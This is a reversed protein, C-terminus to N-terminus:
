KSEVIKIGFDMINKISETRMGQTFEFAYRGAQPFRVQKKFLMECDKVSGGKGFWRGTEDALFCELKDRSYDQNPYYTKLFLFLNMWEYDTNHRLTIYVDYSQITDKIETEFSVPQAINWGNEPIAKTDNLLISDSSSCAMLGFTILFIWLKRM